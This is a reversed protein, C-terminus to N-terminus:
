CGNAVGNPVIKNESVVPKAGKPADGANSVPGNEAHKYDDSVKEAQSREKLLGSAVDSAEVNVNVEVREDTQKGEWVQLL